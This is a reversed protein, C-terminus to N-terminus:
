CGRKGGGKHGGSGGKGGKPGSDKGGGKGKLPPWPNGKRKEQRPYWVCCYGDCYALRM